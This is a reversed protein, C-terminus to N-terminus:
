ALKGNSCARAKGRSISPSVHLSEWYPDIHLAEIFPAANSEKGKKNPAPSNIRKTDKTAAAAKDEHKYYCKDGRIRKGQAHYICPIKAMDERSLKKKKDGKKGKSPSRTRGRGKPFQTRDKGQGECVQVPM